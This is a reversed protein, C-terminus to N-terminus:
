GSNYLKPPIASAAVIFGHCCFLLDSFQFYLVRGQSFLSQFPDGPLDLLAALDM